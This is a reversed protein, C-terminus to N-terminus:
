LQGKAHLIQIGMWYMTGKAWWDVDWPMMILEAMKAPSM